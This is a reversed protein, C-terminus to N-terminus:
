KCEICSGKLKKCHDYDQRNGCGVCMHEESMELHEQATIKDGGLNTTDKFEEGCGKCIVKPM